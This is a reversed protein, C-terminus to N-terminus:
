AFMSALNALGANWGAEHMVRQMEDAFGEHRVVVETADGAARFEVTVLTNKVRDPTDWNWTYVLRKPPDVERYEGRVWHDEGAQNRMLLSWAGGVRVDTSASTIVTAGGVHWRKLEEAKTWADFVRQQPARITRRVELVGSTAATNVVAM